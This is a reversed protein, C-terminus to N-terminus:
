LGKNCQAMCLMHCRRTTWGNVLCYFLEEPSDCQIGRNRWVLKGNARKDVEYYGGPKGWVKLHSCKQWHENTCTGGWTDRIKQDEESLPITHEEEKLLLPSPGRFKYHITATEDESELTLPQPFMEQTELHVDTLNATISHNSITASTNSNIKETYLITANNSASTNHPISLVSPLLICNVFFPISNRKLNQFIM